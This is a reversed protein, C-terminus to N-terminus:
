TRLQFTVAYRIQVPVNQEGIKAPQFVFQFIKDVAIENLGYGPGDIIEAKRVVGNEDILINLMVKGEIEKKRAESPYPIEPKSKLTPMQTVLFEPKPVPLPTTDTLKKQDVEKAITNGEKLVLSDADDSRLSKTDVGFIREVPKAPAPTEKRQQIDMPITPVTKLETTQQPQIWEVELLEKTSQGFQFVSFFVIPGILIFHILLSLGWSSNM